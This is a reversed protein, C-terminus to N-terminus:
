GREIRLGSRMFPAIMGTVSDAIPQARDLSNVQLTIPGVKVMHFGKTDADRTPDSILLLWALESTAERLFKPIEDYDWYSGERDPVEIRPWRLAQTDSWQRGLWDVGDLLRTAWKLAVERETPSADDWEDNHLRANHYSNADALSVFSDANPGGITTDLAM